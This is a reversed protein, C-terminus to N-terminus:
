LVYSLADKTLARIVKDPDRDSPISIFTHENM